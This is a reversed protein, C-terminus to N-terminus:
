RRTVNAKFKDIALCLSYNFFSSDATKDDRMGSTFGDEAYMKNPIRAVYDGSLRFRLHEVKTMHDIYGDALASYWDDSGEEHNASAKHLGEAVRKKAYRKGEYRYCQFCVSAAENRAYSWKCLTKSRERM